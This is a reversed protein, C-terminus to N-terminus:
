HRLHLSEACIWTLLELAKRGFQQKANCILVFRTIKCVNYM